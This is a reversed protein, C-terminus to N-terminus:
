PFSATLYLSVLTAALCVRRRSLRPARHKDRFTGLAALLLNSLVLHGEVIDQPNNLNSHPCDEGSESSRTPYSSSAAMFFLALPL